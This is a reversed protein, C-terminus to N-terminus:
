DSKCRNADSITRQVDDIIRQLGSHAQNLFTTDKDFCELYPCSVDFEPGNDGLTMPFIRCATPRNNYVSCAGEKLFVCEGNVFIMEKLNNGWRSGKAFVQEYHGMTLLREIDKHTLIVERDHCCRSCSLDGCITMQADRGSPLRLITKQNYIIKTGINGSSINVPMQGNNTKKYATPEM